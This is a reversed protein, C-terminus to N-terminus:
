LDIVSYLIFLTIHNKGVDNLINYNGIIINFNQSTRIINNLSAM